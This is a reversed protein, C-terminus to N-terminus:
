RGPRAAGPPAAGPPAAPRCARTAASAGGAYRVLARLADDTEAPLRDVPFWRLDLSEESRVAHADPPAVALLQVDYHWGGGNCGVRHRDLRPLDPLLALGAIGSEETAERLAAGAISADGPECHGGLQLWLGFKPHLTLLVQDRDPTLVLASGTVHGPRCDRRAADDHATVFEAYARALERQRPESSEAAVTTLVRQV